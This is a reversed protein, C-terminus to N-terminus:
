SARSRACREFRPLPAPDLVEGVTLGGDLRSLLYAVHPSPMNDASSPVRRVDLAAAAGGLRALNIREVLDVAMGLLAMGGTDRTQEVLAFAREAHQCAEPLRGVVFATMASALASAVEEPASSAPPEGSAAAPSDPSGASDLALAGQAARALEAAFEAVGGYRATPQKALVRQVVANIAGSVGFEELSRPVQEAAATLLQLVSSGVFPPRGALMEYAIAGLAYQDAHV